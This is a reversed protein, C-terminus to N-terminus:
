QTANWNATEIYSLYISPLPHPSYSAFLAGTVFAVTDNDGPTHLIYPLAQEYNKFYLFSYVVLTLFDDYRFGPIANYVLIPDVHHQALYIGLHIHSAANSSLRNNTQITHLLYEIVAYKDHFQHHILQYFTLALAGSSVSIDKNPHTIASQIFGLHYAESANIRPDLAIVWSRLLSGNDLNIPSTNSTAYWDFAGQSKASLESLAILMSKSYGRKGFYLGDVGYAGSNKMETWHTVFAKALADAFKAPQDLETSNLKLLTTYTISALDSDDSYIIQKANDTLYNNNYAGYPVMIKRTRLDELLQSTDLIGYPYHSFMQQQSSINETLFGLAEGFRATDIITSSNALPLQINTVKKLKVSQIFHKAQQYTIINLKPNLHLKSLFYYSKLYSFNFALAAGVLLTLIVILFKKM